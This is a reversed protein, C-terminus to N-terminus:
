DLFELNATRRRKPKEEEEVKIEEGINLIITADELKHREDLQDEVEDITLRGSRHNDKYEDYSRLQPAMEPAHAFFVDSVKGDELLIKSYFHYDPCNMFDYQTLPAFEEALIRADQPGVRFVVKNKCNTLILDKLEEMGKNKFNTLGQTLITIGLRYGRSQTLVPIFEEDMVMHAEEILWITPYRKEISVNARSRFDLWIAKNIFSALLKTNEDGLEGDPINIITIRGNDGAQRFDYSERQSVIARVIRNSMFVGVKNMTSSIRQMQDKESMNHFQKWFAHLEKLMAKGSRSDEELIEEIKILMKGRYEKNTLMLQFEYLTAVEDLLIANGTMMILQQMAFGWSRGFEKKFFSILTQVILSQETPDNLNRRRLLNLAPPFVLDGLNLYDIKDKHKEPISEILRKQTDNKPDVLVVSLGLNILSITYNIIWESKGTGMQGLILRPKCINDIIKEFEEYQKKYTSLSIPVMPFAVKKNNSQPLYGFVAGKSPVNKDYPTKVSGKTINDASINRTPLLAFQSIESTSIANNKVNIDRESISKFTIKIPRLKNEDDLDKFVTAISKATQEAVISDNSKTAVRISVNFCPKSFKTDKEIVKDKNTQNQKFTKKMEGKTFLVDMVMMISNVVLDLAFMTVKLYPNKFGGKKKVNTAKKEAKANWNEPLPRMIIQVLSTEQEGFHNMTNLLSNLFTKEAGKMKLAFSEHQTLQLEYSHIFENEKKNKMANLPDEVETIEIYPYVANLKKSIIGKFKKPIAFYFSAGSNDSLIEFSVVPSEGPKLISGDTQLGNINSWYADIEGSKNHDTSEIDNELKLVVMEEKKLGSNKKEMKILM